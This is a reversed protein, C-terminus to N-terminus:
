HIYTTPTYTHIYAHMYTHVSHRSRTWLKRRMSDISITLTHIYTYICAHIYSYLTKATDVIKHLSRKISITLTLTHTYAHICTNTYTHMCTHIFLTDQCYGCNRCMSDISIRLKHMCAHMYIYAYTCTQMYTYM